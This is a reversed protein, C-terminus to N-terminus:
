LHYFIGRDGAVCISGSGTAYVRECDLDTAARPGRPNALPVVALRGYTPGLATSRFTIHSQALVQSLSLARDAATAATPRREAALEASSMAVYGVGLAAALLVVLGFTVLRGRMTWHVKM